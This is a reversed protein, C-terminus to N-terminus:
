GLRAGLLLERDFIIDVLEFLLQGDLIFAIRKGREVHIFIERFGGIGTLLRSYLLLRLESSDRGGPLYSLKFLQEIGFPGQLLIIVFFTLPLSLHHECERFASRPPLVRRRFIDSQYPFAQRGPPVPCSFVTASDAAVSGAHARCM